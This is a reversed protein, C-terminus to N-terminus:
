TLFPALYLPLLLSSSSPAFFLVTGCLKRFQSRSLLSYKPRVSRFAVKEEGTELNWFNIEYLEPWILMLGDKTKTITMDYVTLYNPHVTTKQEKKVKWTSTDWIM